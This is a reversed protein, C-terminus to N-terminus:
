IWRLNYGVRGAIQKDPVTTIGPYSFDGGVSCNCCKGAASTIKITVPGVSRQSPTRTAGHRNVVRVSKPQQQHISVAAIGIEYVDARVAVTRYGVPAQGIQTNVAAHTEIRGVVKVIGPSISDVTVVGAGPDHLGKGATPYRPVEVS